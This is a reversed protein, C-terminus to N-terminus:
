NAKKDVLKQVEDTIDTAGFVSARESYIITYGKAKGVERVADRVALFASNYQNDRVNNMEQIFENQLQARAQRSFNNRGGYDNLKTVEDPTPSPKQALVQSDKTALIVDNKIGELEKKEADTLTDQLSLTRFRKLQDASFYPDVELFDLIAKRADTMKQLKEENKTKLNSKTFAATIDVVGVKDQKDAFGTTIVLGGVVVAAVWGLKGFVSLGSKRDTSNNM